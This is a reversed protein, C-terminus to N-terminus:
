NYQSLFSFCLYFFFSNFFIFFYTKLRREFLILFFTAFLIKFTILKFHITRLKSGRNRCTEKFSKWPSDAILWPQTYSSCFYVTIRCNWQKGEAEPMAREPFTREIRCSAWSFLIFGASYKWNKKHLFFITSFLRINRISDGM